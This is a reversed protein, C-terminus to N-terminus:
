EDSIHAEVLFEHDERTFEYQVEISPPEAQILACLVFGFCLTWFFGGVYFLLIM